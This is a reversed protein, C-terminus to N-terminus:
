QIVSGPPLIPKPASKAAKARMLKDQRQQELMPQLLERLRQLHRENLENVRCYRHISAADCLKESTSLGVGEFSRLAYLVRKFPSLNLGLLFVM